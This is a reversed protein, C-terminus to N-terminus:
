RTLGNIINIQNNKEGSLNQIEKRL